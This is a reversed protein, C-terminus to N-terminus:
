SLCPRVSVIPLSQDFEFVTVKTEIGGDLPCLVTKTIQNGNVISVQECWNLSTQPRGYYHWGWRVVKASQISFELESIQIGIPEQIWLRETTGFTLLLSNDIVQFDKPVQPAEGPRGGFVVGAVYVDLWKDGTQKVWRYFETKNIEFNQSTSNNHFLTSFYKFMTYTSLLWGLPIFSYTFTANSVAQSSLLHTLILLQLAVPNSRHKLVLPHRSRQILIM